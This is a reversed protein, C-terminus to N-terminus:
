TFLALLPHTNRKKISASSNAGLRLWALINKRNSAVCVFNYVVRIVVFFNNSLHKPSLDSFPRSSSTNYEDAERSSPNQACQAM